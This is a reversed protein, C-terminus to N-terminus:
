LDPCAVVAAGYAGIGGELLDFAQEASARVVPYITDVSAGALLRRRIMAHLSRTVAMLLSAVLYPSHEDPLTPVVDALTRALRREAREGIERERAQLAPSSQILRMFPVLADNLGTRPDRAALSALFERRFATVIAEGPLRARAVQSWRDEVEAQRDFVLDEKAGFYNFITNVSVEARQAIDTLTVADYGRALFLGLAVDAIQERTRQKKRARLSREPLREPDPTSHTAHSSIETM